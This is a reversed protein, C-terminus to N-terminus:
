IDSWGLPDRSKIVPGRWGWWTMEKILKQGKSRPQRVTPICTAGSWLLQETLYLLSFSPYIWRIIIPPLSFHSAWMMFIWVRVKHKQCQNKYKTSSRKTKWRVALDGFVDNIPWLPTWVKDCFMISCSPLSKRIIDTLNTCSSVSNEGVCVQVFPKRFKLCRSAFM